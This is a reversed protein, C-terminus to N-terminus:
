SAHIAANGETVLAAWKSVQYRLPVIKRMSTAAFLCNIAQVCRVVERFERTSNTRSWALVRAHQSNILRCHSDFFNFDADDIVGKVFAKNQGLHWISKSSLGNRNYTTAWSSQCCRLLEGSSSVRYCNKFTIISNTSQEPISDWVEFHFLM